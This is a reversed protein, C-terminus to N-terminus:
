IKFAFSIYVFLLVIYIYVYICMWKCNCNAAYKCLYTYLLTRVFFGFFYVFISLSNKDFRTVFSM